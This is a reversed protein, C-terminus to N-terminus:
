PRGSKGATPHPAVPIPYSPSNAMSQYFSMAGAIQGGLDIGLERGTYLKDILEDMKVKTTDLERKRALVENKADIVANAALEAQQKWRPVLM